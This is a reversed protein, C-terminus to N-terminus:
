VVPRPEIMMRAAVLDLGAAFSRCDITEGRDGVLDALGAQDLLDGFRGLFLPDLANGVDAVFGVAVAHAHHDLQLAIRRASTTSLWSQRCVGACDLKGALM